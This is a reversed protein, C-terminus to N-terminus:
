HCDPRNCHCSSNCCGSGEVRDPIILLSLLITPFPKLDTSTEPSRSLKVPTMPPRYLNTHPSIQMPIKLPKYHTQRLHMPDMSSGYSTQRPRYPYKPVYLFTQPHNTIPNQLHTQAQLHNTITQLDTRLHPSM